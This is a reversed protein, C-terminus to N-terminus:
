ITNRESKIEHLKGSKGLKITNAIRKRESSSKGHKKVNMLKEGHGDLANIVNEAYVASRVSFCEFSSTSTGSSADRVVIIIIIVAIVVAAIVIGIIVGQDLVVMKNFYSLFSQVINSM